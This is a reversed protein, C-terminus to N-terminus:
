KQDTFAQLIDDIQNQINVEEFEKFIIGKTNILLTKRKGFLFGTANYKKSIPHKKTEDSVLPFPLALKEQFKKHSKISDPSIGVVMIKQAQLKGINDRFIKAQITCNPSSDMPYFYLVINQGIYDELKFEGITGDPFIAQSSFTPASKGVLKQRAQISNFGFAILILAFFRKFNM